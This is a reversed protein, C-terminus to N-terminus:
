NTNVKKDVAPVSELKELRDEHNSLRGNILVREQRSNLVEGLYKDFTNLIQDRYQRANRDVKEELKNMAVTLRSEMSILGDQLEKKTVPQVNSKVM